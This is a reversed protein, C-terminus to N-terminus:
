QRKKKANDINRFFDKMRPDNRNETISKKSEETEHNKFCDLDNHGAEFGCVSCTIAMALRRKLKKDVPGSTSTPNANTTATSNSNENRSNSSPPNESSKANPNNNKKGNKKGNGQGNNPNKGQNNNPGGLTPCKQLSNSSLAKRIDADGHKM